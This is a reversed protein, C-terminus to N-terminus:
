ATVGNTSANRWSRLPPRVRSTLRRRAASLAASAASTAPASAEHGDVLAVRVGSGVVLELGAPQLMQNGPVAAAQEIRAAGRDGHERDVGLLARELHLDGRELVRAGHPLDLRFPDVPELEQGPLRGRVLREDRSELLRDLAEVLRERKWGIAIPSGGGLALDHGCSWVRARKEGAVRGEVGEVRVEALEVEGLQVLREGRLEDRVRRRSLEDLPVRDDDRAEPQARERAFGDTRCVEEVALPGLLPACRVDHGPEREDALEEREVADVM